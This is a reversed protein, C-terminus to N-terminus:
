WRKRITYVYDCRDKINHHEHYAHELVIWTNLFQDAIEALNRQKIRTAQLEEEIGMFVAIDAYDGFYPHLAYSGEIIVLNKNTIHIPDDYSQRFCDFPRYSIIDDGLHDIVDKKFREYDINWGPESTREPTRREEPLFFHDMHIIEADYIMALKEALTSKGSAAMGDIVLYVTPKETLRDRVARSIKNIIHRM